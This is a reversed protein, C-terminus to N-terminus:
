MMNMQLAVMLEQLTIRLCKMLLQVEQIDNINISCKYGGGAAMFTDDTIYVDMKVHIFPVLVAVTFIISATIFVTLIGVLVQAGRSAYNFAYNM